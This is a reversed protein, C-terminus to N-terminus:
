IKKEYLSKIRDYESKDVFERRKFSYVMDILVFYTRFHVWDLYDSLFGMTPVMTGSPPINMKDLLDNFSELRIRNRDIAYNLHGLNLIIRDPLLRHALGSSLATKISNNNIPLYKTAYPLLDNSPDINLMKYLEFKKKQSDTPNDYAANMPLDDMLKNLKSYEVNSEINFFLSRRINLNHKIEDFIANLFAKKQVSRVACYQWLAIGLAIVTTISAIISLVDVITCM